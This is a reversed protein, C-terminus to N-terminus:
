AELTNSFTTTQSFLVVGIMIIGAIVHPVWANPAENVFGLLFPSLVLLAGVAANFALHYPMSLLKFVGFEYQTLLSYLILAAGLVVPVYVAAGGVDQFGFLLPALILALGIIYDFIGQIKTSIFKMDM